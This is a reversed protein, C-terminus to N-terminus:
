RPPCTNNKDRLCELGKRWNSATCFAGGSTFWTVEKDSPQDWRLEAAEPFFACAAEPGIIWGNRIFSEIQHLYRLQHTVQEWGTQLLHTRNLRIQWKKPRNLWARIATQDLVFPAEYAEHEAIAAHNLTMVDLKGNTTMPFQPVHIFRQPIMYDPLEAELVARYDLGAEPAEIFCVLQKGGSFEVVRTHSTVQFSRQLVHHIEQSEIRYGNFKIQADTRSLFLLTGDEQMQVLDGTRYVLTEPLEDLASFARNTQETDSLYGSALSAGFLCLEGKVGRGVAKDAANIVAVGMGSIPKGIFPIEGQRVEHTICGVAAETPGYENILRHPTHGLCANVHASELAEGGVIITKPPSHRFWESESLQIHSPTLKLVHCNSDALALKLSEYASVTEDHLNVECGACLGGLLETLTFDFTLPTFVHTTGPQNRNYYVSECHVLYNGIARNSVLM